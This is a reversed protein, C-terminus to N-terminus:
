GRTETRAPLKQDLWARIADLVQRRNNELMMFHGNGVIGKDKLNMLEADCGAQKLFAIVPEGNRGSREAVVYVIPMGQLHKLKRAPDIQLRYNQGSPGSVDRTALQSPDTVPPDYVLPTATLGWPTNASFPAGGGEVNVIAKVLNPRENAVLYGFPGGASHVQIIAPGIKDVLEAGRSAWLRQAMVNDQPAANQGALIQDILPDGIDGTGPWQHNPGVAARRTDAAIAAYTVNTGIPGLADPHHPARGHGPRDVLYVRYGEQVYHHAWGSQEGVGMYHLMSGGGGHVLVIPYPHRVQVPAFYQVFMQGALITGYPMRKPEAGIWFYGMDALKMATSDKKATKVAPAKGAANVNKDVWALIPKLVERNNKEIMMMHGNGHIGHNVLRLEEAKVGAQKLYAIAGPNGPSAFSAEATVIVIPINQLNKLRRAPEQQLLYPTVGPEPADVRKTKIESPDSVPPDYAVPITSMGWVNQGGFPQGGGEIAIIGKVLSPRIEAVLWGFPGGASHTMIIAPGIKDLLMAGRQRWVLHQPDPGGAPAGSPGLVAPAAVPAAAAGGRGAGQRGGAVAESTAAPAGSGAGRGGAAGGGAIAPATNVYSGGQSAVMQALDPSGVEGTGPWQNHLTRYPGDDPAAANPPTFRGSLSELTLSQAPFPGNVDPHYPSRGHGPRDVVYVSYGEELLIQTWGRRGDPTGMWDLGQGGGGHVLVIPYPHRVQAPVFYEVYMQKGNVYTARALEAREVGVFFYSWEALDLMPQAAQGRGAQAASVASPEGLMWSPISLGAAALASAGRIFGRRSIAGTAYQDYLDFLRADATANRTMAREM